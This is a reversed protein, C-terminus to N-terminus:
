LPTACDTRFGIGMDAFQLIRGRNKGSGTFGIKRPPIAGCRSILRGRLQTGIFLNGGDLAAQTIFNHTTMKFFQPTIANPYDCPNRLGNKDIEEV